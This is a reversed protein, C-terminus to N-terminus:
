AIRLEEESLAFHMCQFYCDAKLLLSSLLFACGVSVVTTFQLIILDLILM